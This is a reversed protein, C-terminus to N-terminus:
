EAPTVGDIIQQELESASASDPGINLLGFNGPTSGHPFMHVERVGDPASSVSDTGEDYSFVDDGNQLQADHFDKDVSFPWLWGGSPDLTAVRDELVATATATIDTTPQGLIAAFFLTVPGNQTGKSRRVTVKVANWDAPAGATLIDSTASTVDIWGVQIDAYEAVTGRAGFSSNLMSTAAARAKALNIVEAIHDDGTRQKVMMMQSTAMSSVGAMAAADAANQLDSRTNIMVGVDIAMATMGLLTTLMLVVVVAVVGRRRKDDFVVRRYRSNVSINKRMNLRKKRKQVLCPAGKAPSLCRSLGYPPPSLAKRGLRVIPKGTRETVKFTRNKFLPLM